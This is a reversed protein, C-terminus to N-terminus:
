FSNYNTFMIVSCESNVYQMLFHCTFIYLHTLEGVAVVLVITHQIGRCYPVEFPSM